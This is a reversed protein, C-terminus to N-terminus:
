VLGLEMKGTESIMAQNWPPEWVIRV